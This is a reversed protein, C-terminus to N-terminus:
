EVRRVKLTPVNSELMQALEDPETQVGVGVIQGITAEFQLVTINPDNADVGLSVIREANVYITGHNISEIRLLDM